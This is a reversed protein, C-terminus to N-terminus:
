EAPTLTRKFEDLAAILDDKKNGAPKLELIKVLKKLEEFDTKGAFDIAKLVQVAEEKTMNIVPTEKKGEPDVQSWKQKTKTAHDVCPSKELFCNGDETFFLIKGPYEKQYEAVRAAMDITQNKAM